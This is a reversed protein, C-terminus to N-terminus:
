QHCYRYTREPKSRNHSWFILHHLLTEGANQYFRDLRCVQDMFCVENGTVVRGIYSFVVHYLFQYVTTCEQQVTWPIHFAQFFMQRSLYFCKDSVVVDFEVDNITNLDTDFCTHLDVRILVIRCDANKLSASMM